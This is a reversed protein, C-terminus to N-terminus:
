IKGDIKTGFGSMVKELTSYAQSLDIDASEVYNSLVAKYEDQCSLCTDILFGKQSKYNKLGRYYFAQHEVDIIFPTIGNKLCEKFMILRGVRGNGDEFPHISEFKHHFDIIDEIGIETKSAYEDLLKQMEQMVRKPSIPILNGIYNQTKKYDGIVKDSTDQKLIRHLEKLFEHTIPVNFSELIFDFAKFHNRTELIDNIKIEEGDKESFFSSTEYIHRTQEKSLRSGEIHNSNYAFVIQNLHYFGNKIHNRKEYLLIELSSFKEM